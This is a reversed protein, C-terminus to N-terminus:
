KVYKQGDQIVIGHYDDSVQQGDVSYLRDTQTVKQPTLADVNAIGTEEEAVVKLVGTSFLESTDWALGEGPAAPDLTTFTGTTESPVRSFITFADGEALSQVNSLDLQLIAGDKLTLTSYFAFANQRCTSDSLKALSTYMTSGNYMTVAGQFRLSRGYATTDGAAVTSGNMASVAGAILGQGRLTAGSRVVFSGTGTHTGNIILQGGTVTTTGSYTNTGTLRWDGTGVKNISTTGSYASNLGAPLDNIVGKFTEDSNAGGVNWTCAFGKTQKSSGILYTGADGSIGGVYNTANTTWASMYIEGTLHVRLNPSNWQSSHYFLASQAAQIPQGNAIIRGTFDPLTTGINFRVYPIVMEVDGNGSLSGSYTGHTPCMLTSTTGDNAIINYSWTQSDDKKYAFDMTGGNLVVTKGSTAFAKSANEVDTLKLTGGTLTTNGNYAFFTSADAISLTGNGDLELGGDGEFTGNETLTVDNAIELKSDAKLQAGRDTTADGGTYRYTGGYMVWNQPFALAAGIASAEGGNAISEFEITGSHNVTAGKYTNSGSLTLTGKGQHNVTTTDGAIIGSLTIDGDGTAVVTGPEVSESITVTRADGDNNLLVNDGTTFARGEQWDTTTYDWATQEAGLTLDPVYTDIDVIGTEVQRTTATLTAYDSLTETGDQTAYAAIRVAYQTAETLGTVTAETADAATRAVEKWTGDEQQIEVVFGEEAYTYDRWGLTLSTTTASALSATIPKRLFFNRDNETISNIYNEINLYGNDALTTADASNPDTGNATEWADPMGDGDTDTAKEGTYWDWTDPAGIPLSTEYTILAGSTGYTMLEDIMYYDSQDRYPLSAGVTPINKELLEDGAYLELEPYDYPTSERTSASYDTILFPDYVGDINNDQWNDDGYVHFDSNAGTFAAGGKAPGNIFLNSEINVYSEGESDGGMIYAGNKWNYVVNNAYQNIGKVKNNRTSNDIYLNRYLTIYDAQMLGGASHTLLGQGIICNQLTIYGLDGKGDSNISFTEDLGWSFSCHDFIMNTGNAVGACDKGSTGNHGM